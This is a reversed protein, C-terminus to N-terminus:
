KPNGPGGVVIVKIKELDFQELIYKYVKQDFKEISKKYFDM